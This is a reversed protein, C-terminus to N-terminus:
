EGKAAADVKEGDSLTLQGTIVIQDGAEIDGEIATQDSQTELVQVEVKQATHDNVVYVFSRDDEQVVATTPVLIADSITIEPIQLESILGTLMESGDNEITAEIPYLGTDDPMASVETITAEYEKGGLLSTYNDDVAILSLVNATVSLQLKMPNMDAIMAFPEENTAMEGESAQLQAIEGSRSARINQKGAATSITAILDEEEVEEGNEIEISDVEGPAQLMVPTMSSPATRGYLVKEIVLDGKEAEATEVPVVRAEEEEDANDETCAALLGILLLLTIGQLIKKM